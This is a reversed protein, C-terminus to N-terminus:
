KNAAVSNDPTATAVVPAANAAAPATPKSFLFQLEARDYVAFFLVTAVLLGTAVGSMCALMRNHRRERAEADSELNTDM